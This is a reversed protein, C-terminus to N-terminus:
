LHKLPKNPLWDVCDINPIRRCPKAFALVLVCRAFPGRRIVKTPSGIV